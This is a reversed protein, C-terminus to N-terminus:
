LAFPLLRTWYSVKGNCAKMLTKAIPSYEWKSNDNAELNYAMTLSLKIRSKGFFEHAEKADLERRDAMIKGICGYRCIVDELLFQGV